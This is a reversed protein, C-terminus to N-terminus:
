RCSALATAAISASLRAIVASAVSSRAPSCTRSGAVSITGPSRTSTCAPSLTGASRRRRRVRSRRTSSDASVPSDTGTSFSWETTARSATSASRASM